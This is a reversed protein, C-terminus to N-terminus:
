LFFNGLWEGYRDLLPHNLGMLRSLHAVNTPTASRGLIASAANGPLIETAVFILLSIVLLTIVGAGMRRVAFRLLPHSRRATETLDEPAAPLTLTESKM